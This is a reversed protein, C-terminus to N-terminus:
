GEQQHARHDGVIFNMMEAQVDRHQADGREPEREGFHNQADRPEIREAGDVCKNVAALVDREARRGVIANGGGKHLGRNVSPLHDARHRQESSDKELFASARPAGIQQNGRNDRRGHSDEERARTGRGGEQERHGRHHHEGSIEQIAYGAVGPQPNDHDDGAENGDARTHLAKKRQLVSIVDGATHVAADVFTKKVERRGIRQAVAEAAAAGTQRVKELILQGVMDSHLIFVGADHEFQSERPKRQPDSEDNPQKCARTGAAGLAPVRRM